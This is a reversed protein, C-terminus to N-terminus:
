RASPRMKALPPLPLSPPRILSPAERVGSLRGELCRAFIVECLNAKRLGEADAGARARVTLRIGTAASANGNHAIYIGARCKRLHCTLFTRNPLYPSRQTHTTPLYTQKQCNQRFNTSAWERWKKALCFPITQIMMITFDRRKKFHKTWELNFVRIRKAINDKQALQGVAITAPM